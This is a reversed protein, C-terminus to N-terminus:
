ILNGITATPIYGLAVPLVSGMQQWVNTGPTFEWIQNTSDGTPPNNFRGLIYIKNQLGGAVPAAHQRRHGTAVLLQPSLM